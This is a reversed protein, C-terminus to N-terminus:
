LLRSTDGDPQAAGSSPPESHLGLKDRVGLEDTPDHGAADLLAVCSGAEIHITCEGADIGFGFWILRSKIFDCTLCHCPEAARRLLGRIAEDNAKLEARTRRPQISVFPAKRRAAGFVSGGEAEREREGDTPPILRSGRTQQDFEVAQEDTLDWEPNHAVADPALAVPVVPRRLETHSREWLRWFVVADRVRQLNVGISELIGAAIGEGERVMGLLLHETGIYHDDLLRAEEIALDIVKRARPTLGIEGLVARDGRGIIFEVATRVKRGDVRLSALVAVGEGGSRLLGLLLHETGVYNHNFQQADEQALTLTHRARETFKAATEAKPEAVM